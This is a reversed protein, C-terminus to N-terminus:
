FACTGKLIMGDKVSLEDLFTPVQASVTTFNSPFPQTPIAHDWIQCYGTGEWRILSYGAQAPSSAVFATVALAALISLKRITLIDKFSQKAAEPIPIASGHPLVCIPVRCPTILNLIPLAAPDFKKCGGRSM